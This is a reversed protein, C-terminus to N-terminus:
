QQITDVEQNIVTGVQTKKLMYRRRAEKGKESLQYKTRAQRGKESHSYNKQAQTWTM